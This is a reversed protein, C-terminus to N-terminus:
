GSGATSEVSHNGDNYTIVRRQDDTFNINCKNKVYKFFDEETKITLMEEM